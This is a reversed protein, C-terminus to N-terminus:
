APFRLLRAIVPGRGPAANADVRFVVQKQGATARYLGGVALAKNDVALDYVAGRRIQQAAITFEHREGPQDLREILVTGGGPLDIVPSTGYLTMQPQPLAPRAGPASRFVMTGSKSSQEATLQLKGGDCKVQTREVSGGKVESAETGVTVTGGQITERWCSKLYSLILTEGKALRIVKGAPVYDMFDVGAAKANVDEVLAMPADALAPVAVMSFLLAFRIRM